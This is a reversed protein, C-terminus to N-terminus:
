IRGARDPLGIEIHVELRGPRLLAEDILDIRNTTCILLFNDIANVGDMMSLFQNVVRDSVGTSDSSSGRKKGIADFEDCIILHLKNPEDIAKQFLKRVNEESEGHFKSLLSPGNVVSPVDCNLVKGVQRAILSKGTGPGGSLIIGKVHNIGLNKLVENPILRSSFARRFITEFQDDLGGIGLEKFNFNGKFLSGISETEIKINKDTSLLHVKTDDALLGTHMKNVRFAVNTATLELKYSQYLICYKHNNTIPIDELMQNM